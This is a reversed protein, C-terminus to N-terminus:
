GENTTSYTPYEEGWQSQTISRQKESSQDLQNEVNKEPV